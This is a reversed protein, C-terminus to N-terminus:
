ALREIKCNFFTGFIPPPASEMNKRLAAPNGAGAGGGAAPTAPNGGTGGGGVAPAVVGPAALGGPRGATAGGGGPAAPAASGSLPCGGIGGDLRAEDVGEAPGGAAAPAAPDCFTNVFKYKELTYLPKLETECHTVILPFM